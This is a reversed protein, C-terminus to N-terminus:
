ISWQLGDKYKFLSVSRVALGKINILPTYLGEVRLKM